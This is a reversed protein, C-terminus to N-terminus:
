ILKGGFEKKIMKLLKFPDIRKPIKHKISWGVREIYKNVRKISQKLEEEEYNWVDFKHNFWRKDSLSM